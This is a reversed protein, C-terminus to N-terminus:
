EAFEEKSLSGVVFAFVLGTLIGWPGLEFFPADLSERLTQIWHGMAYGLPPGLWLRYKWGKCFKLSPWFAISLFLSLGVCQEVVHTPGLNFLNAILYWGIGGILAMSPALFVHGLFVLPIGWRAGVALGVIDALIFVGAAQFSLAGVVIAGLFLSELVVIVPAYLWRFKGEPDGSFRFAFAISLFLGIAYGSFAVSAGWLWGEHLSLLLAGSVVVALAGWRSPRGQNFALLVEPRSVELSNEREATLGPEARIAELRQLCSARHRNFIEGSSELGSRGDSGRELRSAKDGTRYM